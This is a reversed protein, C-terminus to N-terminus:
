ANFEEWSNGEKQHYWKWYAKLLTTYENKQYYKKSKVQWKLLRSTQSKRPILNKKIEKLWKAKLLDKLIKL